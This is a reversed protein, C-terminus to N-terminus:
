PPDPPPLPPPRLKKAELRRKEELQALLYCVDSNISNIGKDAEFPKEDFIFSWHNRWIAALISSLLAAMSIEVLPEIAPTPPLFLSEVQLATWVQDRLFKSLASQWILLKMPCSFLFHHDDEDHLSCIRCQKSIDSTPYKNKLRVGTPLTGTLLRWWVNRAKHIMDAKWFLSWFKKTYTPPAAAIDEARHEKALIYKRLQRTSAKAFTGSKDENDKPPRLAISNIREAFDDEDKGQHITPNDTMYQDLSPHITLYGQEIHSILRPHSRFGLEREHSPIFELLNEKIRLVKRMVWDPTNPAPARGPLVWHKLSTNLITGLPTAVDVLPKASAPLHGMAEVLNHVITRAHLTRHVKPGSTYRVPDNFVALPAGSTYGRFTDLLLPTLFSKSDSCLSQIKRLQLAACQAGIDVLGLGGEQKSRCLTSWPPAPNFPTVFKKVAGQVKRIWTQTPVHVSVVHWLKSLLLSNAIHSRGLVSLQRGSYLGICRKIAQYMTDFFNNRQQTSLAIPYGLYVLAQDEETTHLRVQDAQLARHLDPPMVGNLSFAVTKQLNLRANSARSYTDLIAKLADWETASQIFGALDDAYAMDTLPDAHPSDCMQVGSIEPSGSIARLLPEFALNFLLPSLPDGQRLGRQQTFPEALFGNINLNVHTDFFLACVANILQDPINMKTMVARLYVPHVRDYAKEQDFLIGAGKINARKCHELLNQMAMGNDSILRGPVFGTQRPGILTDLHRQLRITIIKTFLKADTNILSLPRWNGLSSPPGKKYLLIMCTQQWSAPISAEQLAANMIRCLLDMLREDALLFDYLEFPFGDMGPARDLPTMDLVNSIEDPSIPALLAAHDEEKIRASDPLSSLIAAISADDVPDPTYLNCYFQRGIRCLDEAATVLRDTIPDLIETLTRKIARSQLLRFFYGNCREGMERWRSQTRLGLRKFEREQCRALEKELADRHEELRALKEPKPNPADKLWKIQSRVHTWETQLRTDIIKRDQARMQGDDKLERQLFNKINDWAFHDPQGRHLEFSLDLLNNITKGFDDERLASANLRWIGPGTKIAELRVECSILVHDTWASSVYSHSAAAISHSLDTSTFIYDITTQHRHNDFTPLPSEYDPTLANVMKGAIWRKWDGPATGQRHHHYNLDGLLVSHPSPADFFPLKLLGKLFNDRPLKPGSPAYVTCVEFLIEDTEKSCITGVIARQDVTIYTSSFYLNANLILLGCHKSWCADQVNLKANLRTLQVTDTPDINTEQIALVDARSKKLFRHFDGSVDRNQTELTRVNLSAFKISNKM